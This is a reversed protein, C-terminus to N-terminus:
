PEHAIDLRCALRRQVYLLAGGIESGPKPLYQQIQQEWEAPTPRAVEGDEARSSASAAKAGNYCGDELMTVTVGVEQMQALMEERSHDYGESLGADSRAAESALLELGGSELGTGDESDGCIGDHEAGLDTEPM